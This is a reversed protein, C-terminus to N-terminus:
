AKIVSTRGAYAAGDQQMRGATGSDTLEVNRRVDSGSYQRETGADGSCLLAVVDKAGCKEWHVRGSRGLFRRGKMFHAERKFRLFAFGNLEGKGGVDGSENGPLGIEGRGDLYEQVFSTLALALEKAVAQRAHATEGANRRTVGQRKVRVVQALRRLGEEFRQAIQM